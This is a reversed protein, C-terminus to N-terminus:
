EEDIYGITSGPLQGVCQQIHWVGPDIRNFLSQKHPQWPLEISKYLRTGSSVDKGVRAMLKTGLHLIM